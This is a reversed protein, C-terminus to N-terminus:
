FLRELLIESIWGTQGGVLVCVYEHHQCLVVAILGESDLRETLVSERDPKQAWVPAGPIARVLDGVYLEM